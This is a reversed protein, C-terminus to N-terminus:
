EGLKGPFTMAIERESPAHPGREFGDLRGEIIQLTLEGSSLNQEPLYARTTIYGRDLYYQTLQKLLENLQVPALCQGEFSAVIQRQRATPILDARQLHIRQV